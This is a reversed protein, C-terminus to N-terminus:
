RRAARARAAARLRARELAEPSGKPWDNFLETLRGFAGVTPEVDPADALMSSLEGFTRATLAEVTERNARGTPVIPEGVRVRIRRRFALWSSGNIAVPIIPVGFRLAFYATGEQLPWLDREHVHLRGEGAIALVGRSDLVAGVRRTTELLDNKGPKFPVTTGTWRMLRNRGGVTMDEEKPGFFYLRPRLPLATLLVFPDTWSGHSFCYIVPGRPPRGRRELRVDFVLRVTISTLLRTLYYRVTRRWAPLDSRPMRSMARPLEMPELPQTRDTPETLDTLDTLDSM